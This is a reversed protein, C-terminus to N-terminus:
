EEVEGTPILPQPTNKSALLERYLSARKNASEYLRVTNATHEAEAEAFEAAINRETKRPQHAM